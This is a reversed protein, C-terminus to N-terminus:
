FQSTSNLIFCVEQIARHQIQILIETREQRQDGTANIVCRCKTDPSYRHPYNPSTIFGSKLAINKNRDDAGTGCIDMKLPVGGDTGLVVDIMFKEAIRSWLRLCYNHLLHQLLGCSSCFCKKEDDDNDDDDDDDRM